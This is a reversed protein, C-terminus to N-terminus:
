NRKEDNLIEGKFKLHHRWGKSTLFGWSKRKPGTIFLTWAVPQSPKLFHLFESNRYTWEGADITRLGTPAGEYKQYEEILHGKLVYSLSVWPHDHMVREDPGLFCHLYINLFRNKPILHWRRLYPRGATPIIEDPWRRNAYRVYWPTKRNSM